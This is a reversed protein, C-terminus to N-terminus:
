KKFEKNNVMKLRESRRLAPPSIVLSAEASKTVRMIETETNIERRNKLFIFYKVAEVYNPKNKNNNISKQVLPAEIALMEKAAVIGYRENQKANFFDVVYKSGGRVEIVQKM